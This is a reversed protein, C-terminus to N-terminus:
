VELNSFSVTLWFKHFRPIINKFGLFSCGGLFHYECLMDKRAMASAKSTNSMDRNVFLDDFETRKKKGEIRGIRRRKETSIFRNDKEFASLVVNLLMGFVDIAPYIDV